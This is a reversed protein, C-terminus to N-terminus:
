PFLIDLIDPSNPDDLSFESPLVRGSWAGSGYKGSSAASIGGGGGMGRMGGRSYSGAGGYGYSGVSVDGGDDEELADEDENPYTAVADSDGIGEDHLVKVEERILHRLQKLTMKM